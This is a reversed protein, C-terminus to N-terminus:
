FGTTSGLRFLSRHASLWARAADTASSGQVTAGLAGGPRVLSSPTGFDNWAVQADLASAAARQAHTPALSGTRVDVDPLGSANGQINTDAWASAAVAMSVALVCGAVFSRQARMHVGRGLLYQRRRGTAPSAPM